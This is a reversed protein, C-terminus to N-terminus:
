GDKLFTAILKKAGPLLPNLRTDDRPWPKGDPASYSDCAYFTETFTNMHINALIVEDIDIVAALPKASVSKSESQAAAICAPIMARAGALQREHEALYRTALYERLYPNSFDVFVM